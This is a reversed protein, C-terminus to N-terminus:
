NCCKNNPCFSCNSNGCRTCVGIRIIIIATFMLIWFAIFLTINKILWYQPFLSIIALPIVVAIIQRITYRSPKVPKFLKIVILGMLIHRCTNNTVHPCKRCYSYLIILFGLPIFLIYGIGLILSHNLLQIAALTFAAFAIIISLVGLFKCRM